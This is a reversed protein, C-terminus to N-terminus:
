TETVCGIRVASESPHLSSFCFLNGSATRGVQGSPGPGSVGRDWLRREGKRGLERVIGQWHWALHGARCACVVHLVVRGLKSAALLEPVPFSKKMNRHHAVAQQASRGKLYEASQDQMLTILPRTAEGLQEWSQDAEVATPVRARLLRCRLHAFFTVPDEKRRYRM